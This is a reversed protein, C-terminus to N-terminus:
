PAFRGSLDGPGSYRVDLRRSQFCWRGDVRVYADDYAAVM